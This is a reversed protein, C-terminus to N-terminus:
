RGENGDEIRKRRRATSHSTTKGKNSQGVVQETSLPPDRDETSTTTASTRPKALIDYTHDHQHRDESGSKLANRKGNDDRTTPMTAADEEDGENELAKEQLRTNCYHARMTSAIDMSM